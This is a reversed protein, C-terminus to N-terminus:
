RTPVGIRLRCALPGMPRTALEMTSGSVRWTIAKRTSPGPTLGAVLMRSAEEIRSYELRPMTMSLASSSTASSSM